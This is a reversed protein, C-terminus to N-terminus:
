SNQSIELFAKEWLVGRTATYLFPELVFQKVKEALRGTM